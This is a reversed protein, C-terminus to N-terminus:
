FIQLILSAKYIYERKNKPNSLAPIRLLGPILYIGFPYFLGLVFSIITDKILHYQTKRYIACFMSLYYWFFLLFISSTIFYLIFKINLKNKLKITRENLSKKKKKNKKFKLIDKESLALIKLLVNFVTSIISSYIITPLQYIFNFSGKDEYIKHMTNDNFFLANITYYIIFNIFFLDIKMIKSNYDENYFFTFIIIHKTKFLSIYYQCYSRKDYKLAKKYSLNNKEEVNYEMIKKAKQIIVNNDKNETLIKRNSNEEKRNNLVDLREHNNNKNKKLKLKKKNKISHREKNQNPPDDSNNPQNIIIEKIKEDEKNNDNNKKILNVNNNKKNNNTNHKKLRKKIKSAKKDNEVLDWNNIAFSIDNIKDDIISKQNRYFIIISILHFIIIPITLYNAINNILGQKTFLEKYCIMLQINAINKIDIFNNLLKTKNIKMDDFFSSSGKAKCSCKAKENIEDYESFVCDDQCVTKNGEIFEIIRDNLIIDAGSDSIAPYCIDNYYGSSSNLIDINETIKIPFLLSINTNSCNSLDIKSLSKGSNYYVDYEIKPIKMGEQNIDIKKIYLNDKVEFEERLLRECEGLDILSINSNSNNKQNQSTTLTVIMKDYKFIVDNGNDLNSTDYDKSTFMIEINKLIKDEENFDIKDDQKKNKDFCLFENENHYTNNPCKDFCFNNYEYNFDSEECSEVCKDEKLDIKINKNFCKDSCNFNKGRLNSNLKIITDQDTLCIKLNPVDPPFISDINAENQIKFSYLNLYILKKAGNFTGDFNTVSSTNFNSLDLYKLEECYYFMGQMNTVKSTDFNSVNISSLKYCFAFIDEMEEVNSTNFRSIDISLLSQCYRFMSHMSTVSSTDFSSLDISVLSLCDHFLFHMNTVLSTNINGFTIKELNSCGYFMSDMNTVNSTDLNSLDIEKIEGLGNFMNECSEIQRDFIITVNNLGYDLVCRKICSEKLQGNIRVKLPNLYFLNNLIYQNQNGQGEIIITIEFQEHSTKFLTLLIFILCNISNFFVKVKQSKINQINNKNNVTINNALRNYYILAIFYNVRM